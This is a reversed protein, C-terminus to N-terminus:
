DAGGSGDNRLQTLVDDDNAPRLLENKDDANLCMGIYHAINADALSSPIGNRAATHLGIFFIKRAQEAAATRVALPKRQGQRDNGEQWQLLFQKYVSEDEPMNFEPLKEEQVWRNRLWDTIIRVATDQGERAQSAYSTVVRVRDSVSRLGGTELLFNLLGDVAPMGMRHLDDILFLLRTKGQEEIFLEEESVGGGISHAHRVKARQRCVADLLSILEFRLARALFMSSDPDGEYWGAIEDPMDPPLAGGAGLRLVRRLHPMARTQLGFHEATEDCANRVGLLLDKLTNPWDGREGQSQKKGVLIPVHGDRVAQAALEHLLWTRGYREAGDPKGVALSLVQVESQETSTIRQTTHDAMLLNYSKFVSLRGCFAPYDQPRVYKAAISELRAAYPHPRLKFQASALRSSIFLTPLAWDVSSKPDENGHLIIGARRGEAVALAADGGTLLAEYFRRTFLRCAHDAVEGAMGVVIPIGRRSLEIALPAAMQGDRLFNDDDAGASHCANLVAVQPPPAGATECLVRGLNSGKVQARSAPNEDDILELYPEGTLDYGGHCIFHVVSPRFSQMLTEIKKLSAQLLLHTNLRLDRPKLSRLLGLYEAGPRIVDNNLATGVIFLVRPPSDIEVTAIQREGANACAVRRTIAIKPQEGLFRDGDHLTEWPLRNLAANEERWCLSLEIPAPSWGAIRKLERWVEAGLLTTFLYCGFVAVAGEDPNRGVFQAYAARLKVADGAALLNGVERNLEADAAYQGSREEVPPLPFVMLGQEGGVARLFRPLGPLARGTQPDVVPQRTEGDLIQVSWGGSAQQADIVFQM